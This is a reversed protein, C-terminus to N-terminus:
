HLIKREVMNYKERFIKSQEILTEATDISYLVTAHHRDGLLDGIAKLTMGARDRLLKCAIQRAETLKRERVQSKLEPYTVHLTECLKDIVAIGVQGRNRAVVMDKVDQRLALFHMPHILIKQQAEM